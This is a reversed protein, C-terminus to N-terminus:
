EYGGSEGEKTQTKSRESDRVCMFVSGYEKEEQQKEQKEKMRGKKKGVRKHKVM